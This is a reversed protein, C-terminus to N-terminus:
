RALVRSLIGVAEDIQSEVITLPPVIEIVSGDGAPLLILGAGLADDVVRLAVDRSVCEVGLMLGRGRVARIVAPHDSRLTDLADQLYAGRERAVRPLDDREMVGIAALAAACALPNGLFTSTHLAEGRSEGWCAMLPEAAVCASIPLGGGMAKGICLLDPTVGERECAFWDGTRGWGTFIEDLILLTGNEACISALEALWGQPPVRIGARGQIPEVVACGADRAALAARIEAPPCGFPLRTTFHGLQDDFPARFDDRATVDLAGYTLGHYGGDFALVGRRGTALRATKLAAEVADGGNQGLIVQANPVPVHAAIKECLAVKVGSPHVDGMGHILTGAQDRIAAVVDPHSHGVAAVGFASTLDLYRNGDADVVTCGQASKWFIPFRGGIFTINPSEHRRLRAALARSAPGPISPASPRDEPL